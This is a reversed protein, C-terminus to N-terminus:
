GVVTRYHTTLRGDEALIHFALAPPQDLHVHAAPGEPDGHREWPLRLTSVVGPAVLLPRGAFTTAAPTHAHGCVFGAIQPRREVLAALREQGFQRIGDVFPTHLPVPPHHFGVLAPLGVPARGLVGDLWDLTEDELFGEDKGPVSSDCLAIVCGATHLVQNVPAGSGPQGLLFQRFATREDHNGPCVLVPHRSVLLQRAQEYEAARAHDAIDGTVLVADLDCPLRELYDMVARTREASRRGGDLHIDSLHAIIIM